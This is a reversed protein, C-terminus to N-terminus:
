QKNLNDMNIEPATVTRRIQGSITLCWSDQPPMKWGGSKKKKFLIIAILSMQRQVHRYNM